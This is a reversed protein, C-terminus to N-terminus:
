MRIVYLQDSHYLRRASAVINRIGMAFADPSNQALPGSVDQMSGILILAISRAAMM